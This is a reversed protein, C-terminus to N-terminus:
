RVDGGWDKTYAFRMDLALLASIVVLAVCAIIELASFSRPAIVFLTLPTGCLLLYFSGIGRLGGRNSAKLSKGALYTSWNLGPIKPEIETRIYNLIRRLHQQHSRMLLCSAIHVLYLAMFFPLLLRPASAQTDAASAIGVFTGFLTGFVGLTVTLLSDRREKIAAAQEHLVKYEELIVEEKTM